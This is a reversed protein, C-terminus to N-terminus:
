DGTEILLSSGPIDVSRDARMATGGRGDAAGSDEQGTAIGALASCM